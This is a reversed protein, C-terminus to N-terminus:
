SVAAHLWFDIRVKSSVKRPETAALGMSVLKDAINIWRDNGEKDYDLDLELRKGIVSLVKAKPSDPTFIDEYKANLLFNLNLLMLKNNFSFPIVCFEQM